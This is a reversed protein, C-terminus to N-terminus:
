PNPQESGVQGAVAVVVAAEAAAVLLRDGESWRVVEAVEVHLRHLIGAPWTVEWDAAKEWWDWGDLRKM